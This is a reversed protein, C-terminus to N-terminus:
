IDEFDVVEFDVYFIYPSSIYVLITFTNCRIIKCVCYKTQFLIHSILFSLLSPENMHLFLELACCHVQQLVL